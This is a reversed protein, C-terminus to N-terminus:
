AALVEFGSTQRIASDTTASPSSPTVPPTSPTVPPVSPTLPPTSPPVPPTVPPVPATPATIPVASTGPTGYVEVESAQATPWGTNASITLRLYRVGAAPFSIKARSRRAPDFLYSAAAKLPSYSLGDTSGAVEITQSRPRWTQTPPLKVVVKEVSAGAVGLDVTLSTPFANSAGEWFTAPDGDVVNAPVHDGNMSSTTVAHNRALNGRVPTTPFTPGGPSQTIPVDRYVPRPWGACYPTKSYWGSNGPGVALTAGASGSCSYMPNSYGVGIATVNDFSATAQSQVQVAFTGTGQINVNTFHVGGVPGEIFQIAAYSSDLIDTDTVNLTAGAIPANLGDFWIAGVGSQWNYDSGGARILTNRALTFTGSVSTGHGVDVNPYRNAIHIGGGNTVTDSVVNDTVDIDKGGYVAINNALLPVAITNRSFTDNVAQHTDAWIALGDDGVNRVFNNEITSNTVGDHLNIGGGTTDLIRNHTFTLNTMPGDMWAGVKVHQIWLNDITSNSLAGGIGNVQDNDNREMVEGIIAFNKLTVNQSPAGSSVYKGYVGVRRGTLVSYWPGAGALTVGDVIIHDTVRFNGQPIWVVKHQASAAAVAAQIETTSDTAGSPDAGYDAVVDLAGSPKAIPAALLEFDALDVTFANVPMLSSVQLRIKTGAAFTSGFTTRVEDYFHHPSGDTPRNTFPYRGYYWSYKSTLNLDKLKTGNVRLSIAATLGAGDPSDPVSYRFTAANAPKTLSFEVYQDVGNLTVAKRGSAESPLTGYNRDPGIVIGNTAADEAEQEVFPVTAGRGAIAVPSVDAQAGSASGISVMTVLGAVLTLCSLAALGTRTVRTM